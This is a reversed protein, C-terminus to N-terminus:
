RVQRPRSFAAAREVRRFHQRSTRTSKWNPAYTRSGRRGQQRSASSSARKLCYDHTAQTCSSVLEIAMTAPTCHNLVHQSTSSRIGNNHLHRSLVHQSTSNQNGNIHDLCTTQATFNLKACISRSGSPTHHFVIFLILVLPCTSAILSALYLVQHQETKDRSSFCTYLVIYLLFNNKAHTHKVHDYTYSIFIHM